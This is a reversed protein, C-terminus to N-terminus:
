GLPLQPSVRRKARSTKKPTDARLSTYHIPVYRDVLHVVTEESRWAKDRSNCRSNLLILLASSIAKYRNNRSARFIEGNVVSTESISELFGRRAFRKVNM